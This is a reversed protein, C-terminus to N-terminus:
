RNKGLSILEEVWDLYKKRGVEPSLNAEAFEKGKSALDKLKDPQERLEEIKRALADPDGAEVLEAVGDM